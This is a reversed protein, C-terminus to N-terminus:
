LTYVLLPDTLTLLFMPHPRNITSYVQPATPGNDVAPRAVNASRPYGLGTILSPVVLTFDTPLGRLEPSVRKWAFAFYYLLAM